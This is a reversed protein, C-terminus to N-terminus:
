PKPKQSGVDDLFETDAIDLGPEDSCYGIRDADGGNTIQGSSDSRICSRFHFVASAKRTAAPPKASDM